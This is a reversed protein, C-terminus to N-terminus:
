DGNDFFSCGVVLNHQQNLCIKNLRFPNPTAYWVVIGEGTSNSQDHFQLGATDKQTYMQNM